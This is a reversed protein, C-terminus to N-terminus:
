THLLLRITRYNTCNTSNGKKAITISKRKLIDKPLNGTEYCENIIKFLRSQTHEDLNKLIEAPMDDIGTAKKHTLTTLACDFEIRILSPGKCHSNVEEEHELYNLQDIIEEGEYLEELYEKWRGAVKENEFLLNRYKNSVINSKTRPKYELSRVRHYAIDTNNKILLYEIEKCNGRLWLDKAEHCQNTIENKIREYEVHNVTRLVIRQKILELIKQTM